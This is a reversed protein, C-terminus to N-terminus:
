ASDAWQIPRKLDNLDSWDLYDDRQLRGVVIGPAIGQRNAFDRVAQATFRGAAVFQAYEDPPLLTDRAFRDAEQEAEDAPDRPADAADIFDARKGSMLHGAEHYFSFWFHDNSRHRLSLQIIAKQASLWRAAGSLHTGKFEPTLVLAVGASACLTRVQEIVYAFPTRRTLPRVQQLVDRLRQEDFTAVDIDEALLEGWRLWAAVAPPASPHAPSQRFSVAPRLWHAEWARPTSVRFFALLAAVTAGKTLGPELLDHEKLDRLPFTEAWDAHAELDGLMRERALQARHAIELANWFDASIGLALELQVATEATIAAKGNVIENITKTPRSMRRALESQSMGRDHLAEALIEGPAVTWDRHWAAREIAM